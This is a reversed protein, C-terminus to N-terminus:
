FSASRHLYKFKTSVGEGVSVAAVPDPPASSTGAATAVPVAAALETALELEGTRVSAVTEGVVVMTEMVGVRWWSRPTGVSSPPKPLSPANGLGSKSKANALSTLSPAAVASSARFGPSELRTAPSRAAASESETTNAAPEASLLVLCDRWAAAVTLGISKAITTRDRGGGVAATGAEDPRRLKCQGRRMRRGGSCRGRQGVASGNRGCVRPACPGPEGHVRDCLRGNRPPTSEFGALHAGTLDHPCCGGLRCRWLRHRDQGSHPRQRRRRGGHRCCRHYLHHRAVPGAM